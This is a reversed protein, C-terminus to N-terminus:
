LPAEPVEHKVMKGRLAILNGFTLSFLVSNLFANVALHLQKFYVEIM